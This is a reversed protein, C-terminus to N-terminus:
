LLGICPQLMKQIMRVNPGGMLRHHLIQAHLATVPFKASGKPPLHILNQM